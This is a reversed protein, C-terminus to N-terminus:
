SDSKNLQSNVDALETTKSGLADKLEAIEAQLDLRRKRLNLKQAEKVLDETSKAGGTWTLIMECPAYQIQMRGERLMTALVDMRIVWFAGMPHTYPASSAILDTYSLEVLKLKTLKYAFFGLHMAVQQSSALPISPGADTVTKFPSDTLPDNRHLLSMLPAPDAEMLVNENASDDIAVYYRFNFARHPATTEM